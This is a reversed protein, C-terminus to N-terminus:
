KSKGFDKIKLMNCTFDFLKKCESANKALKHSTAYLCNSLYSGGKGELKPAIAAYM